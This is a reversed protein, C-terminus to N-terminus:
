MVPLKDMSLIASFHANVIQKHVLEVCLCHQYSHINVVNLQLITLCERTEYVGGSLSRTIFM